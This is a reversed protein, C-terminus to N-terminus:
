RQRYGHYLNLLRFKEASKVHKSSLEDVTNIIIAGVHFRFDPKDQVQKLNIDWSGTNWKRLQSYYHSTGSNLRVPMYPVSEHQFLPLSDILTQKSTAEDKKTETASVLSDVVSVPNPSDFVGLKYVTDQNETANAASCALVFGVLTFFLQKM